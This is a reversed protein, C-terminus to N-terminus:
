LDSVGFDRRLALATQPNEGNAVSSTGVDFYTANVVDHKAIWTAMDNIFTPDDGGYTPGAANTVIGSNPASTGWGLGLEPFAIPKAQQAAFTALWDLGWRRTLISQFEATPGPYAFWGEDYVDMGIIDVYGNGPYYNQYNGMAADGPGNDGMGVNWEFRFGAGPVSRMTSVIDRWYQDFASAKGAAFWPSTRVNFEWGLRIISNGQGAAVLNKGLTAYYGDYAGTAGTALTYGGSSALMPVAWIMRYGSGKWANLAWEDDDFDAWTNSALYDSAYKPDIHLFSAVSALGPPNGAGVYVTFASSPPLSTQPSDNLNAVLQRLPHLTSAEANAPATLAFPLAALAVLLARLYRAQYRRRPGHDPYSM